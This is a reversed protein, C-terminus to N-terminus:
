RLRRNKLKRRTHCRADQKQSPYLYIAILIGSGLLVVFGVPAIGTFTVKLMRYGLYACALPIVVARLRRTAKQSAM